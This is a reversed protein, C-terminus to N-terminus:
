DINFEVRYQLHFESLAEKFKSWGADEEARWREMIQLLEPITLVDQICQRMRSRVDDDEYHEDIWNQIRALAKERGDETKIVFTIPFRNVKEIDLFYKKFDYSETVQFYRGLPTLVFDIGGDNANTRGTKFLQLAIDQLTTPSQGIYITRGSFDAALIAFSAVEFIRASEERICSALFDYAADSAAQDLIAECTNLLRAERATRLELYLKIIDLCITAAESPSCGAIDLLRAEIKYTTGRNKPVRVIPLPHSPFLKRFEQNIRHNLAHNQIKRGWSFSRIRALAKSFQLGTHEGYDVSAANCALWDELVVMIGSINAYSARAKAGRAVAAMKYALYQLLVSSQLAEWANGGLTASLYARVFCPTGEWVALGTGSLRDAVHRGGCTVSTCATCRRVVNFSDVDSIILLDTSSPVTQATNTM